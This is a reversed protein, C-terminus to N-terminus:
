QFPPAEGASGRGEAATEATQPLPPGGALGAEGAPVVELISQESLFEDTLEMDPDAKYEELNDIEISLCNEVMAAESEELVHRMEAMDQFIFAMKEDNVESGAESSPPAPCKPRDGEPMIPKCAALRQYIERALPGWTPTESLPSPPPTALNLGATQYEEAMDQLFTAARLLRAVHAKKASEDDPVPYDRAFKFLDARAFQRGQQQFEPDAASVAHLVYDEVSEMDTQVSKEEEDRVDILPPTQRRQTELVVVEPESVIKGDIIRGGKRIQLKLHDLEAKVNKFQESLFGYSKEQLQLLTKTKTWEKEALIRDRSQRKEAAVSAIKLATMERLKAEVVILQKKLMLEDGSLGRNQEAELQSRLAAAEKEVLDLRAQDSKYKKQVEKLTAQQRALRDKTGALQQEAELLQHRSKNVKLVCQEECETLHHMFHARLRMHAAAVVEKPTDNFTSTVITDELLSSVLNFLEGPEGIFGAENVGTIAQFLLDMEPPPLAQYMPGWECDSTPAAPPAGAEAEEMPAAGLAARDATPDAADPMDRLRPEVVAVPRTAAANGGRSEMQNLQALLLRVICRDLDTGNDFPRRDHIPGQHVYQYFACRLAAKTRLLVAEVAPLPQLPLPRGGEVPPQPTAKCAVCIGCPLCHSCAGGQPGAQPGSRSPRVGRGRGRGRGAKSSHSAHNAAPTGGMQTAMEARTLPGRRARRHYLQLRTPGAETDSSSYFAEAPPAAPTVQKRTMFPDRGLPLPMGPGPPPMQPHFAPSRGELSAQWARLRAVSATRAKMSKDEATPQTPDVATSEETPPDAATTLALPDATIKDLMMPDMPTPSGARLLPILPPPPAARTITYSFEAAAAPTPPLPTSPPPMPRIVRLKPMAGSERPTLTVRNASDASSKEKEPMEESSEKLNQSPNRDSLPNSSIPLFASNSTPGVGHPKLDRISDRPVREDMDNEKNEEHTTTHTAPIPTMVGFISQGLLCEDSATWGYCTPPESINAVTEGGGEEDSEVVSEEDNDSSEGEEVVQVYRIKKRNAYNGRPPGSRGKTKISPFSNKKRNIVQNTSKPDGSPQYTIKKFNNNATSPPAYKRAGKENCKPSNQFHTYSGCDFCRGRRNNTNVAYVDENEVVTEGIGTLGEAGDMDFPDCEESTAENVAMVAQKRLSLVNRRGVSLGSGSVGEPGVNEFFLTWVTMSVSQVTPVWSSLTISPGLEFLRKRVERNLLGNIAAHLFARTNNAGSGPNSRFWLKLKEAAYVAPEETREQKRIDFEAAAQIQRDPSAFQTLLKQYYQPFSDGPLDLVPNMGILFTHNPSSKEGQPKITLCNYLLKKLDADKSRDYEYLDMNLGCTSWKLWTMEVWDVYDEEDPCFAPTAKYAQHVARDFREKDKRQLEIDQATDVQMNPNTEDPGRPPSPPLRPPQLNAHNMMRALEEIRAEMQAIRPDATPPQPTPTDVSMHSAARRFPDFVGRPIGNGGFQTAAPTPPQPERWANGYPFFYPNFARDAPPPHSTGPAAPHPPRQGHSLPTARTLSSVYDRGQIHQSVTQLASFKGGDAPIGRISPNPPVPTNQRRAWAVLQQGVNENQSAQELYQRLLPELGEPADRGLPPLSFEGFSLPEGPEKDKEGTPPSTHDGAGGEAM